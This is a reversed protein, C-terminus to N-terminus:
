ATIDFIRRANASAVFGLREGYGCFVVEAYETPDGIAAVVEDFGPRHDLTLDHEHVRRSGLTKPCFACTLTCRDTINLYLRDEIAYAVTQEVPPQAAAHTSSMRQAPESAPAAAGRPGRM